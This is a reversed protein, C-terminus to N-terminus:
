THTPLMKLENQREVSITSPNLVASYILKLSLLPKYIESIMIIIIIDWFYLVGEVSSHQVSILTDWLLLM